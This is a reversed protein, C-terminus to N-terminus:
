CNVLNKCNQSTVNVKPYTLTGKFISDRGQKNNEIQIHIYYLLTVIMRDSCNCEQSLWVSFSWGPLESSM